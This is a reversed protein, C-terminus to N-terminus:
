LREHEGDYKNRVRGQGLRIREYKDFECLSHEIERMELEPFRKPLYINSEALLMEMERVFIKENQTFKINRKHIRNLGRKAGNGPNAWTMIDEADNLFTTYRLDTAIEYAMFKGLCPFATLYNTVEELTNSHIIASIVLHEKSNVKNICDCIGRLKTFGTPSKIIYAGTFIKEEDQLIAEAEYSNWNTLLGAKLLKRGTPIYNFWRFIITGLVVSPDSRYPSRFHKKFWKTTKDNERFPNCFKYNKFIPDDTWPKPLGAEKKKYIEHRDSIWQFFQQELM